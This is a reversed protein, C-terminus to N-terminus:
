NIFIIHDELIYRYATIQLQVLQYYLEYPFSFMCSYGPFGQFLLAILPSQGQWGVLLKICKGAFMKHLKELKFLIISVCSYISQCVLLLFSLFGSKSGHVYPFKTSSLLPLSQKQCKLEEDMQLQNEKNRKLMRVFM